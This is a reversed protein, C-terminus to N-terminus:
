AAPAQDWITHQANIDKAGRYLLGRRGEYRSPASSGAGSGRLLIPRRGTRIGTRCIQRASSALKDPRARPTSSVFLVEIEVNFAAHWAPGPADWIIICVKYPPTTASWCSTGIFHGFNLHFLYLIFTSPMLRRLTLTGTEPSQKGLM